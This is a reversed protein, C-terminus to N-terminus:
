QLYDNKQIQKKAHNFWYWTVLCAILISVIISLITFDNAMQITWKFFGTDLWVQFILYMGVFFVIIIMYSWFFTFRKIQDGPDSAPFIGGISFSICLWTIILAIMPLPEIAERLDTSFIYTGVLVITIGIFISLYPLIFRSAVLVNRKIPLQNLMAFYPSAYLGDDLKQYQFNKPKISFALSGVYIILFADLLFINEELYPPMTLYFFFTYIGAILLLLLYHKKSVDLELKALWFAKRMTDM